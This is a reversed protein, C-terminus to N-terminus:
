NEDASQLNARYLGKGQTTNINYFVESFESKVSWNRTCWKTWIIYIKKCPNINEWLSIVGKTICTFLTTGHCFSCAKRCFLSFTYEHCNFRQLLQKKITDKWVFIIFIILGQLSNILDSFYWIYWPSNEFLWQIIEMSWNVGMLIFLKM